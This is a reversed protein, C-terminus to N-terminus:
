ANEGGQFTSSTEWRKGATQEEIQSRLVVISSVKVWFFFAQTNLESTVVVINEM